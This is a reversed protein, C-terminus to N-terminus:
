ERSVQEATLLQKYQVSLVCVFLLYMYRFANVCVMKSM